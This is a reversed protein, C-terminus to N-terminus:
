YTVPNKAMGALHNVGWTQCASCAIFLCGFPNRFASASKGTERSWETGRYSSMTIETQQDNAFASPSGHLVTRWAHRKEDPVIQSRDADAQHRQGFPAGVDMKQAQIPLVPPQLFGWFVQSIFPLHQGHGTSFPGCFHVALDSEPWPCGGGRGRRRDVRGSLGM